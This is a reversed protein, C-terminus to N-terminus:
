FSKYDPPETCKSFDQFHAVRLIEVYKEFLQNRLWYKHYKSMQNSVQNFNYLLPCNYRAIQSSPALFFTGFFQIVILARPRCALSSLLKEPSKILSSIVSALLQVCNQNPKRKYHGVTNLNLYTHAICLSEFSLPYISLILFNLKPLIKIPLLAIYMGSEKNGACYSDTRGLWLQTPWYPFRLRGSSVPSLTLASEVTQGKHAPLPNGVIFTARLFFLGLSRRVLSLGNAAQSVLSTGEKCFQCRLDVWHTTKTM